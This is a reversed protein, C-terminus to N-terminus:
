IKQWLINGEHDLSSGEAYKQYGYIGFGLNNTVEFAMFCEWEFLADFRDPRVAFNIGGRHAVSPYAFGDISIEPHKDSKVDLLLASLASTVKYDRQKAAPQLFMDAFFADVLLMRAKEAENAQNLMETLIHTSEADGVFARGYRRVHDIEGIATLLLQAEPRLKAVGIHLRSSIEPTLESFVTDLNSAGYFVTVGPQHCRGFDHSYRLPRYSFEGPSSLLEQADLRGRFLRLKDNQPYALYPMERLLADILEGLQQQPLRHAFGGRLQEIMAIVFVPDQAKDILEQPTVSSTYINKTM